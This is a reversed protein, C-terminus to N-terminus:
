LKNGSSFEKKQAKLIDLGMLIGITLAFGLFIALLSSTIAKSLPKPWVADLPLRIDDVVSIFPKQREMEISAGSLATVSENYQQTLIGIDRSIQLEPVKARKMVQGFGQDQVNALSYNKGTLAYLLSDRKRKAFKVLNAAREIKKHIYFESITKLHNELFLKTFSENNSNYNMVILGSELVQAKLSLKIQNSFSRLLYDNNTNSGIVYKEPFVFSKLKPDKSKLWEKRTGCLDIFLNAMVVKKGDVEISKILSEEILKNSLSLDVIVAKNSQTRQGSIAMLLQSGAGAQPSEGMIDDELMCTIRASFDPEKKSESIYSYVFALGGLILPIFWFRKVKQVIPLVTKEWVEYINIQKRVEEM